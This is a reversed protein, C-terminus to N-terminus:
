VRSPSLGGCTRIRDEGGIIKTPRPLDDCVNAYATTECHSIDNRALDHWAKCVIATGSKTGSNDSLQAPNQAAKEIAKGAAKAFDL